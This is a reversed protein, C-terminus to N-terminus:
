LNDKLQDFTTFELSPTSDTFRGTGATWLADYDTRTQGASYEYTKTSGITHARQIIWAGSEAIYGYYAYTSDTNDQNTIEFVVNHEGVKHFIFSHDPFTIAM